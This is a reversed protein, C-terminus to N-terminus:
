PEINDAARRSFEETLEKDIRLEREDLLSVPQMGKLSSLVFISEVEGLETSAIPRESIEFWELALARTIGPLCGSALDPSVWEDHIRLVLNAVGTECVEGKRNLRIADDFGEARALALVHINETYPLTKIGSLLATEDIPRDVLTLRAPITWPHLNEHLLEMVGSMSFTIRLRGFEPLEKGSGLLDDVALRIEYETPIPIRMRLASRKARAIHRSLAFPRSATTKITEFIGNGEPFQLGM